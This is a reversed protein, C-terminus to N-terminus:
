FYIVVSTSDVKLRMNAKFRLYNELLNVSIADNNLWLRTKSRLTQLLWNSCCCIPLLLCMVVLVESSPHIVLPYCWFGGTNGLLLLLLM